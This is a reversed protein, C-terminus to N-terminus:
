LLMFYREKMQTVEKNENSDDMIIYKIFIYIPM